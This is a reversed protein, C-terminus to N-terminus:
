FNTEYPNERSPSKGAVPVVPPGVALVPVVQLGVAQVPVVLLVVKLSSRLSKLMDEPHLVVMPVATVVAIVMATAAVMVAEQHVKLSLRSSKLKAVLLLVALGEPQGVVLVREVELPGAVPEVELLGVVLVLEVQVLMRMSLRLLQLREPEAVTDMAAVVVAPGAVMAPAAAVEVAPGAVMVAAVVVAPGAAKAVAPVVVVAVAVSCSVLM